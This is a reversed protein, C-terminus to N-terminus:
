AARLLLPWLLHTALLGGAFFAVTAILSARQGESLGMIAHGSTCGNAWRAGFGILFGGVVMAAFGAPTALAALSFLASPAFRGDVAVGMATLDALTGEALAPPTPHSTLAGLAGGLAIGAVFLLNWGGQARWDYRFYPIRTPLTACLHRYCSSIGFRRGGLFLLLPVMLGIAPGAVYWPWPQRLADLLSDM